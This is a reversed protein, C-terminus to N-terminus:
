NSTPAGMKKKGGGETPPDGQYVVKKKLVRKGICGGRARSEQPVFKATRGCAADNEQKIPFSLGLEWNRKVNSLNMM